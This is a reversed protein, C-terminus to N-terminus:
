LRAAIAQWARDLEDRFAPAAVSILTQAREHVSAGRLDAIGFETVVCDVDVRPLTTVAQEGLRPVIRSASGRAATAGLAIVSLGQRSQRAARAFDPAGGAGSIARGNAHELNCQGFLDVELASNVAVLRDLALLGRPDHTHACARVQLRCPAAAAWDYFAASGLLVCATHDFGADLAGAEALSRLGESLMGSHLRLGRHNRLCAALASPMRGLGLQLAAGDEVLGAVHSAIVRSEEDEDTAYGPLPTDVECVYDFASYAVSEAGPIRPTNRNILALTRRSRALATPSFEVAPGLSCRGGADPPSVQVVTLDIDTGEQLHRVFGSYSLPLHRFRGERQAEAFGAQMFPGSVRLAPHLAPLKLTNIPPVFSTLLHVGETRAPDRELAAVFASPEGSSGPLFVTQRPELLSALRDQTLQAPM